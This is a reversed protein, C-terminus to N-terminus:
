TFDTNPPKNEDPFSQERRMDLLRKIDRVEGKIIGIEVRNHDINQQVKRAFEQGDDKIKLQFDSIKIQARMTAFAFAGTACAGGITLIFGIIELLEKTTM